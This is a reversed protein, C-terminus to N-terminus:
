LRIGLAEGIESIDKEVHEVMNVVVVQDKPMQKAAEAAWAIAHATRVAPIVGELRALQKIANRAQVPDGDVYEVEGSAQLQSHEREVAPYDSAELIANALNRQSETLAKGGVAFPDQESGAGPERRLSGSGNVCVLRKGSGLYPSLFGLADATGSGRAVLVDPGRKFQSRVQIRLERGVVGVCDLALTPFPEPASELGMVMFRKDPESLCHRLAVIRPDPNRSSPDVIEVDAGCAWMRLVNASQQHTDEGDMFVTAKIGVSAALSAMVVGKQGYISGTVVETFGLKRAVLVQGAVAAILAAGPGMMDERKLVIQAGGLKESYRRAHLLSSPRNALGVLARDLEVLFRDGLKLDAYRENISAFYPKSGRTDGLRRTVAEATAERESTFLPSSPAIRRGITALQQWDTSDLNGRFLNRVTQAQRLFAEERGAEYYLEALRVHVRVDDPRLALRERLMGELDDFLAKRSADPAQDNNDTSM